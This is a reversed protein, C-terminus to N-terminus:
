PETRMEVPSECSYVNVYVASGVQIATPSPVAAVRWRVRSMEKWRVVALSEISPRKPTWLCQGEYRSRLVENSGVQVVVGMRWGENWALRNEYVPTACGALAAAALLTALWSSRYIM